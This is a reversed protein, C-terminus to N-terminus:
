PLDTVKIFAYRHEPRTEKGLNFWRANDIHSQVMAHSADVQEVWADYDAQAMAALRAPTMEFIKSKVPLGLILQLIESLPTDPGVEGKYNLHLTLTKLGDIIKVVDRNGPDGAGELTTVCFALASNFSRLDTRGVLVYPEVTRNGRSDIEAIQGNAFTAGVLEEKGLYRLIAGLSGKNPDSSDAVEEVEGKIAHETDDVRRSMLDVLKTTFSAVSSTDATLGAFERGAALSNFQKGCLEFEADSGEGVRLTHMTIHQFLGEVDGSSTGPQAAALISEISVLSDEGVHNPADGILILHRNAVDNWNLENIATRVGAFVQEPNDGGGEPVIRGLASEFASLNTGMEFTCLVKSIYEDGRDRYGVLALRVRGKVNQNSNIAKAIERIVQKAGEIYPGMSSTTDIVFVLDLTIEKQIQTVTVSEKPRYSALINKPDATHLYAVTYVIVKEGNVEVVESKLIPLLSLIEVGEPEQSIAETTEGNVLYAQVLQQNGFFYAPDRDSRLAFGLVQVHEWEVVDDQNIWGVATAESTGAAVRYFGSKTKAGSEDAQLAFFWEFQRLPQSRSDRKPSEFVATDNRVIVKLAAGHDSRLVDQALAAGEMAVCAILVFVIPLVKRFM